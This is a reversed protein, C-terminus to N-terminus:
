SEDTLVHKPRGLELVHGKTVGRRKDRPANETDQFMSPTGGDATATQLIQVQPLVLVRVASSTDSRIGTVPSRGCTEAPVGLYCNKQM